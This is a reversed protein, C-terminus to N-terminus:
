RWWGYGWYGIWRIELFTIRDVVKIAQTFGLLSASWIMHCSSVNTASDSCNCFNIFLSLPTKGGLSNHWHLSGSSRLHSLGMRQPREITPRIGIPGSRFSIWRGAFNTQLERKRWAGQVIGLEPLDLSQLSTTPLSRIWFFCPSLLNANTLSQIWNKRRKLIRSKLLTLCNYFERILTAM